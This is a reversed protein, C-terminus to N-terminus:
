KELRPYCFAYLWGHKLYFQTNKLAFVVASKPKQLNDTNWRGMTLSVMCWLQRNALISFEGKQGDMVDTQRDVWRDPSILPYKPIGFPIVFFHFHFSVSTPLVQSIDIGKECSFIPKLHKSVTVNQNYKGKVFHGLVKKPIPLSPNSCLGVPGLGLPGLTLPVRM